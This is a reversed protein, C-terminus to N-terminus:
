RLGVLFLRDLSASRVPNIYDGLGNGATAFNLTRAAASYCQHAVGRPALNDFECAGLRYALVEKTSKSTIRLSGVGAKGNTAFLLAVMPAVALDSGSRAARV